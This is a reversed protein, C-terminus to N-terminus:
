LEGGSGTQQLKAFPLAASIATPFVELDSNMLCRFLYLLELSGTLASSDILCDEQEHLPLTDLEFEDDLSIM